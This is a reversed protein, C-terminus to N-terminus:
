GNNLSSINENEIENDVMLKGDKITIEKKRNESWAM